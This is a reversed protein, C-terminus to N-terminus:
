QRSRRLVTHWQKRPRPAKLEKDAKPELPLQFYLLRKKGGLAEFREQTSRSREPDSCLCSRKKRTIVEMRLPPTSFYFQYHLLLYLMIFILQDPTITM